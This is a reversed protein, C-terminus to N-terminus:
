CIGVCAHVPTMLSEPSLLFTLETPGSPLLSPNQPIVDQTLRDPFFSKSAKQFKLTCWHPLSEFQKPFEDKSGM